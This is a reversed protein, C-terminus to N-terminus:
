RATLEIDIIRCDLYSYEQPIVKCPGLLLSKKRIFSSMARLMRWGMPLLRLKWGSKQFSDLVKNSEMAQALYFLSFFNRARSEELWGRIDETSVGCIFSAALPEGTM